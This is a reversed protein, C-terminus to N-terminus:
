KSHTNDGEGQGYEPLVAGRHATHVVQPAERTDAAARTITITQLPAATRTRHATTINTLPGEPSKGKPAQAKAKPHHLHSDTNPHVARSYM